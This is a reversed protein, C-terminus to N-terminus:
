FKAEELARALEEPTNAGRAVAPRLGAKLLDSEPVVITDLASLWGMACQDELTLLKDFARASYLACLPQRFGDVEPACAEAKGIRVHLFEVLRIDFQPLDCSAVFVCEAKPKFEALAAIPGGFESRDPLLAAGEIAERGLITVPIGADVLQRVIRDAQPVGDIQLKAKDRGMRRSEGGTLM